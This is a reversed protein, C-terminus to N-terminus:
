PRKRPVARVRVFKHQSQSVPNVLGYTVESIGAGDYLNRPQKKVAVETTSATWDKLDTSTEVIYDLVAGARRRFTVSLFTQGASSTLSSRVPSGSKANKPDTGFAYEAFNNAGDADADALPAAGASGLFRQEWDDPLQDADTDSAVAASLFMQKLMERNEVEALDYDTLNFVGFLRNQSDLIWVDRYTVQWRQWVQDESTDQLWPLNRGSTVSSNFSEQDERNVGLIEINM